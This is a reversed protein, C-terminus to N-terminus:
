YLTVCSGPPFPPHDAVPPSKASEGYFYEIRYEPLNPNIENDSSTIGSLVQQVQRQADDSIIRDGSFRMLHAELYINDITVSYHVSTPTGAERAQVSNFALEPYVTQGLIEFPTGTVASHPLAAPQNYGYYMSLQYDGFNLNANGPYVSSQWDAPHPIFFGIDTEITNIDGQALTKYPIIFANGLLLGSVLYAVFRARPYTHQM